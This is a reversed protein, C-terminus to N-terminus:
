SRVDSQGPSFYLNPSTSIFIMEPHIYVFFKILGNKIQIGLVEVRLETGTVSKAVRTFRILRETAPDITLHFPPKGNEPTFQLSVIEDQNLSSVSIGDTSTFTTGDKYKCIWNM